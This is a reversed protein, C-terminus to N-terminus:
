RALIEFYDEAIRSWIYRERAIEGMKKGVEYGVNANLTLVLKMLQDSSQFYIAKDDTTHRNFSCDWAVIPIDFHMMEVLSPNTGGASHGHVYLWARDRIGKLNQEEYIPDFLFIFPHNSFKSKLKEGYESNQWNGVFVLPTELASWAELIVHVNNEPEIRCLGLAYNEPLELLLSADGNDTIAHDGGYAIVEVQRGYYQEVHAAIADNDAIVTHSLKVALFESFKLYQRTIKNWKERKWEIGDINTVVVVWPFLRLFLIGIAGSVGLLLIRNDGRIVSLFMSFFDYIISQFGNANLPVYRLRATKYYKLRPKIYTHGSCYVTLRIKPHHKGHYQVLNDALTEFGGYVAPVGVTGIISIKTSKKRILNYINEHM